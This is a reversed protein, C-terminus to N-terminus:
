INLIENKGFVLNLLKNWLAKTLNLHHKLNIKQNLMGFLPVKMHIYVKSENM